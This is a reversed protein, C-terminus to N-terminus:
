HIGRVRDRRNTADQRIGLGVALPTVPVHASETRGAHYRGFPALRRPANVADPRLQPLAEGTPLVPPPLSAALTKEAILRFSGACAGPRVSRM